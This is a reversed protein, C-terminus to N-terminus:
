GELLLGTKDAVKRRARYIRMEVAKASIKMVESIEAQSLGEIAFLLLPTRLTEPLSQIAHEVEALVGRDSVEREPSPADSAREELAPDGSIWQLAVRRRIRDRGKNRAIQFLWALFPRAPDYRHLNRHLAVFTEQTADEADGADTLMRGLFRSVSPGHRQMLFNFAQDDGGGARAVLAADSEESLM